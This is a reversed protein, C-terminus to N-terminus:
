SFFDVVFCFYMGTQHQSNEGPSYFFPEKGLIHFDLACFSSRTFGTRHASGREQHLLSKRTSMYGRYLLVVKQSCSPTVKGSSTAGYTGDRYAPNDWLSHVLQRQHSEPKLLDWGMRWAPYNIWCFDPSSWLYWHFLPSNRGQAQVHKTLGILPQLCCRGYLEIEVHADPLHVGASHLFNYRLFIVPSLTSSSTM